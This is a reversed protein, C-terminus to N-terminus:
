NQTSLKKAKETDADALTTKNQQKYLFSRLSYMLYNSQYKEIGATIVNIAEEYRKLNSLATARLTYGDPSNADLELIKTAAALAENSKNDALLATSYVSYYFASAHNFSIAKEAYQIATNYNRQATYVRALGILGDAYQPDVEVSRQFFGAATAYEKRDLYLNGLNSLAYQQKPDLSIATNYDALAKDPQKLFYYCMGRKNFGPSYGPNAALVIDYDKIANEYRSIDFFNNARNLRANSNDPDIQLAKSYQAIALQVKGLMGLAMGKKNYPFDNKANKLICWDAFDITGQYRKLNFLADLKINWLGEDSPEIAIAKNVMELAEAYKGQINQYYGIAGMAHFETPKIKLLQQFTAIAEDLKGAKGYEGAKAILEDATQAYGATTLLLTAAVFFKKIM